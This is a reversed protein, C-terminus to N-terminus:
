RGVSHVASYLTAILTHAGYVILAGIMANTLGAKATRFATEDGRATVMRIGYFVVGAVLAMGVLETFTQALSFAMSKLREYTFPEVTTASASLALLTPKTARM